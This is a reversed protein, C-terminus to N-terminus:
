FQGNKKVAAEGIKLLATGAAVPNTNEAAGVAVGAVAGAGVAAGVEAATKLHKNVNEWYIRREAEQYMENTYNHGGNGEVMEEIKELLEPVRTGNKKDNNRFAHYRGGCIKLLDQIERSPMLFEEVSKNIQDACTFLVMTYKSAEEGFKEQIWQVANREEQTFRGLRIVLLFAHPGPVSLSICNDIERKVQEETLSISFLGPTDIVALHRGAVVGTERKSVMTIPEPSDEEKFAERGLITNGSASKGAGTKGVLVIRLDFMKGTTARTKAM